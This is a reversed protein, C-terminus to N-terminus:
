IKMLMVPIYLKLKMKLRNPKVTEVKINRNFKANGVTVTAHYNGTRAESSTKTPFAYIVGTNETKIQKDVLKGNPDFLEMKVPYQSGLEDELIFALHIDDGPRWVGRETYIFGKVGENNPAVGSVQFKSLSNSNGDRLKLYSKQNEFITVAAAM